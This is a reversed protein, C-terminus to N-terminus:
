SSGCQMVRCCVAVCQRRSCSSMVNRVVVSWCVAGYQLVNGDRVVFVDRGVV